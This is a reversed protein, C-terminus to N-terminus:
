ASAVWASAVWRGAMGQDRWYKVNATRRTVGSQSSEILNTAALCKYRSPPLKLRQLTFMEAMGEVLQMASEYDRGPFRALRDL